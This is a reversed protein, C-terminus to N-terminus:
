SKLSPPPSFKLGGCRSSAGRRLRKSGLHWRRKRKLNKEMKNHNIFLITNTDPMCFSPKIYINHIIVLFLDLM